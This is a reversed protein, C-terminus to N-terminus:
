DDDEGLSDLFDDVSSFHRTRGAEIETDAEREGKQWEPFWFGAHECNFIGSEATVTASLVCLSVAARSEAGTQVAFPLDAGTTTM